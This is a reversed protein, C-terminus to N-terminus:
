AKECVFYLGGSISPVDLQKITAPLSGRSLQGYSGAGIIKFGASVLFDEAEGARFWYVYPTRDLLANWNVKGGLKLWPLNQISTPNRTMTRLIRVYGILPRYFLSRRRSDFSLFSFVAKGGPRLIRYAERLAATREAEGPILCLIQQLYVIQDFSEDSYSLRTADQVQFDISGSSDRRRAAEILGPVFDFGHLDSFGRAQMALLLRGGGTGAELTRRQKNLHNDILYREAEDVEELKAWHEFEPESYVQKNDIM